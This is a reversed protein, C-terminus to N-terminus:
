EQWTKCKYMKDFANNFLPYQKRLYEVVIVVKYSVPHHLSNINKINTELSHNDSTYPFNNWM